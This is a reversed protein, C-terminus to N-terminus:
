KLISVSRTESISNQKTKKLVIHHVFGLFLAISLILIKQYTVSHQPHKRIKKFFAIGADEFTSPDVGHLTVDWCIETSLFVTTSVELQV